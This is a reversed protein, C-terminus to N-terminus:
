SRGVEAEGSSASIECHSCLKALIEKLATRVPKLLVITVIPTPVSSLMLLVLTFYNFVIFGLVSGDLLSSRIRSFGAPLVNTVFTLISVILFYILNKAVARKVGANEGAITNKKLFCYSLFSFTVIM